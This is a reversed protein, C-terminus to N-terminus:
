ANQFSHVVTRPISALPKPTSRSFFNEPAPKGTLFFHHHRETVKAEIEDGSKWLKAHIRMTLGTVSEYYSKDSVELLSNKLSASGERRFLLLM